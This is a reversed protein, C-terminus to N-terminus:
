PPNPTTSACICQHGRDHTSPLGNHQRFPTIMDDWCWTRTRRIRAAPVRRTVTEATTDNARTEFRVGTPRSAAAVDLEKVIGDYRGVLMGGAVVGVEPGDLATLVVTGEVRPAGGVAECIAADLSVEVYVSVGVGTGVAEEIGEVGHM